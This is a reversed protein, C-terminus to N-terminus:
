FINPTIKKNMQKDHLMRFGGKIDEGEEEAVELDEVNDTKDENAM